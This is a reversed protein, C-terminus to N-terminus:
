GTGVLLEIEDFGPQRPSGSSAHCPQAHPRLEVAALVGTPDGDRIRLQRRDAELPM